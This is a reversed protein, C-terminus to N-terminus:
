PATELKPQAIFQASVTMGLAILVLAGPPLGVVALLASQDERSMALYAVTLMAWVGQLRVSWYRTRTRWDAAIRTAIINM